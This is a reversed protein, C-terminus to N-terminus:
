LTPNCLSQATTNRLVHSVPPPAWHQTREQSHHTIDHPLAWLRPKLMCLALVQVWGRPQSARSQAQHSTNIGPEKSHAQGGARHEQLGGSPMLPCHPSPIGKSKSNLDVTARLWCCFGWQVQLLCSQFLIQTGLANVECGLNAASSLFTCALHGLIFKETISSAPAAAIECPCDISTGGMRLVARSSRLSCNQM